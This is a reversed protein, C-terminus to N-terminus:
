QQILFIQIFTHTTNLDICFDVTVVVVVQDVGAVPRDKVDGVEGIRVYM